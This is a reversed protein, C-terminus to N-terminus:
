SVPAGRCTVGRSSTRGSGTRVTSLSLTTHVNIVVSNSALSENGAPRVYCRTNTGPLIRFELTTASASTTASRATFYTTSPRSYCRLEYASNPTLGSALLVGQINPQIDPTSTSLTGRGGNGPTPSASGYTVVASDSCNGAKSNAQPTTAGYPNTNGPGAHGATATCQTTGNFQSIDATITEDGSESALSSVEVTAKGNADTTVGTSSGATNVFRGPGSETFTVVVGPVPAGDVDTVLATVSGVGSGPTVTQTKPTLTVNRADQPTNTFTLTASGSSSTGRIVATVTNKEGAVPTADTLLVSCTGSGATTCDFTQSTTSGNLTGDGTTVTFRVLIGNQPVPTTATNNVTATFVRDNDSKANTCAANGAGTNAATGNTDAVSTGSGGAGPDAACTVAITNGSQAAIWNKTITDGPECANPSAGGGAPCAGVDQGGTTGNSQNVFVNITDTVVASRSYSCTSMGTNDSQTCNIPGLNGPPTTSGTVNFVPTVGPVPNGTCASNNSNQTAVASPAVGTSSTTLHATFTHTEGVVNTASEPTADVCRVIDAQANSGPAGGAGFTATTQTQPEGATFAGNNNADYFAQINVVGAQNSIVGFSVQGANNTFFVGQDNAGVGGNTVNAPASPAPSVTGDSATCFDVDQTSPSGAQPTLTVTITAGASPQAAADTATVTYNLCTGAAGTQSPPAISLTTPPVAAQAATAFFAPVGAGITAVVVGAVGLRKLAKSTRTM